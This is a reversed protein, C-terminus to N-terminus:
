ERRDMGPLVSGCIKDWDIDEGLLDPIQREPLYWGPGLAGVLNEWDEVDHATLKGDPGIHRLEHYITAVM